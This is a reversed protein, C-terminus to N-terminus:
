IIVAGRIEASDEGSLNGHEFTQAAQGATFNIAIHQTYTTYTTLTPNPPSTATHLIQTQRNWGCLDRGTVDITYCPGGPIRARWGRAEWLGVRGCAGPKFPLNGPCCTAKDRVAAGSMHDDSM